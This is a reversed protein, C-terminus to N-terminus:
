RGAAKAHQEFEAFNMEATDKTFKGGGGRVNHRAPEPADTVLKAQKKPADKFKAEIAEFIEEARSLHPKAMLMAVEPSLGAKM